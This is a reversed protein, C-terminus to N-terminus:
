LQLTEGPLRLKSRCVPTNVPHRASTRRTDTYRCTKKACCVHKDKGVLLSLQPWYDGSRHGQPESGCEDRTKALWISIRLSSYWGKVRKVGGPMHFIKLLEDTCNLFYLCKFTKWVCIYFEWESENDAELHHLSINEGRVTQLTMELTLIHDHGAEAERGGEERAHRAVGQGHLSHDAGHSLGADVPDDGHGGPVSLTLAAWM